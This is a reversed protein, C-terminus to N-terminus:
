PLLVIASARFVPHRTGNIIFSKALDRIELSHTTEEDASM